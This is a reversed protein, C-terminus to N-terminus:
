TNLHCAFFPNILPSGNIVFIVVYMYRRIYLENMRNKCNKIEINGVNGKELFDKLACIIEAWLNGLTRLTWLVLEILKFNGLDILITGANDIWFDWILPPGLNSWQVLHLFDNALCIWRVEWIFYAWGSTHFHSRTLALFNTWM